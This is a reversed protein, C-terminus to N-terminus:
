GDRSEWVIGTTLALAGVLGSVVWCTTRDPILYHAAVIIAAGVGLCLLLRWPLAEVVFAVLMDLLEGIM